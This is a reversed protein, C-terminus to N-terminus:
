WDSAIVRDIRNILPVSGNRMVESQISLRLICVLIAYRLEVFEWMM